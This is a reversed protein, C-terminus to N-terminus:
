PTELAESANDLVAWEEEETSPAVLDGAIRGTGEMFGDWELSPEAALPVLHAVPRGRKTIEVVDGKEQVDDLIRLCTQKFKGAPISRM